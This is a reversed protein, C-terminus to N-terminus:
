VSLSFITSKRKQGNAIRQFFATNNDGELLWKSNSRKYWYMEEEQSLRLLETQIFTKRELLSNRLPREEEEEVKELKLLEEQLLNRYKRNLGRLSQGWGKLFKKLKKVKIAWVGITSSSQNRGSKKFKQYSTM